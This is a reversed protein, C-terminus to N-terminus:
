LARACGNNQENFRKNLSTGTATATTTIKFERNIEACAFSPIHDATVKRTSPVFNKIKCAKDRVDASCDIKAWRQGYNLVSTCLYSVGVLKKQKATCETSVSSCVHKTGEVWSTVISGTRALIRGGGGDKERHGRNSYDIAWIPQWKTKLQKRKCEVM